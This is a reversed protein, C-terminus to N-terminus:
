TLGAAVVAGDALKGLGCLALLDVSRVVHQGHAFISIKKDLAESDRGGADAADEVGRLKELM